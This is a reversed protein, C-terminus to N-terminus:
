LVLLSIDFAKVSHTLAGISIRDIDFAAYQNITELSVNGSIEIELNPYTSRCFSIAQPLHELKFNDLLVYDFNTLNFDQLQNFSEIEIMAKLNPNKRKAKEIKQSMLELQAQEQIVKLHNEKILIMDSLSFRHNTGGGVKVAAKELFRLGPTTKRTDCIKISPTNLKKVFNHTLTAIGSIRQVINLMSRELLLLMSQDSQISCILTQNKVHDGDNVFFELKSQTDHLSFFESIIQKGFFVGEQKAILKATITKSGEFFTSVTIDDTPCDEAVAAQILIKCKSKFNYDM